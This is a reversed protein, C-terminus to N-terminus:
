VPTHITLYRTVVMRDREEVGKAVAGKGRGRRKSRRM